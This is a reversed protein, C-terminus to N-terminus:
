LHLAFGSYKNSASIINQGKQPSVTWLFTDDGEAYDLCSVIDGWYGEVSEDAHGSLTIYRGTALNKILSSGNHEEITWLFEKNGKLPIGYRLVGDSEYLYADTTYNNRIYFADEGAFSPVPISAAAIIVALLGALFRNITKM